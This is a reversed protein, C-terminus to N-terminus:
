TYTHIFAVTAQLVRLFVEEPKMKVKGKNLVPDRPNRDKTETYALSVPGQSPNCPNEQIQRRDKQLLGTVLFKVRDHEVKCLFYPALSLEKYKLPLYKHAVEGSGLTTESCSLFLLSQLSPHASVARAFLRPMECSGAVVTEPSEVGEEPSWPCWSHMHQLYVHM